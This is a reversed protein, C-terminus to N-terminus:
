AKSQRKAKRALWRRIIAHRRATIPYNYLVLAGLIGIAGPLLLGVMKLGAIGAETPPKSPDFGLAGTLPLAIGIGLALALKQVFAYLAMYLAADDSGSKFTGYEVTDGILAPPMVWIVSTAFGAVCYIAFAQWYGQPPVLFFFPHCAFFVMAGAILARHRGFKGAVWAWFPLGLISLVYQVFVFQLFATTPLGIAIGVIFLILANYVAGGLWLLLVGSLLRLLPKNQRLLSLAKFFGFSHARLEDGKSVAFLTIPTTIALVAIITWSLVTLIQKLSPEGEYLLPLVVLPMATALVTGALGAGERFSTVRTRGNYDRVLEAGWSMYPIVVLSYAVYFLFATIMLYNSDVGPQPQLLFIAGVILLPVGVAFWPKRRGWKSRTQDSLNGVLPDIIADLGRALFFIFGVEAIGIGIEQAYFPPLYAILLLNIMSLAVMPASYALLESTSLKRDM